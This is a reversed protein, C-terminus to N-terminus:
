LQRMTVEILYFVMIWSRMMVRQKDEGSRDCLRFRCRSYTEGQTAAETLEIQHRRGETCQHPRHCYRQAGRGRM